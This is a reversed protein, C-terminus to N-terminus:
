RQLERPTDTALDIILRAKETLEGVGLLPDSEDPVLCIVLETYPSIDQRSPRHAHVANVIWGIAAGAGSAMSAAKVILRSVETKAIKRALVRCIAAM